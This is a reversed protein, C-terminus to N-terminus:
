RHGVTGETVEVVNSGFQVAMGREQRSSMCPNHSKPKGAEPVHCLLLEISGLVRQKFVQLFIVQSQPLNFVVNELSTRVEIRADM